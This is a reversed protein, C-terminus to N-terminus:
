AAAEAPESDLLAVVSLRHYSAFQRFEDDDLLITRGGEIALVKAGAALMTRLTRVGVTPVDFRMDQQPKAVKVVTFGGKKCLQGARLICADTGEIAEVALVARDKVCVSQGVDLAGMQKALGWAFEIDKLQAASPPRGAIQGQKVLLEPAFDTAPYFVIGHGAFADALAGLLTDDTNNRSRTVLFQYFTKIFTWDPRHRWWTGPQYLRVKHFKGAMTAHRVGRRRFFKIAGGLSGWGIWQFDQCVSRLEPDAMDAVGLCCVHYNQRRLAHAVLLPYRGWAALLGIRRQRDFADHGDLKWTGSSPRHPASWESRQGPVTLKTNM